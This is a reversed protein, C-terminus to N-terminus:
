ESRPQYTLSTRNMQFNKIEDVGKFKGESSGDYKSADAARSDETHDREKKYSSGTLVENKLDKNLNM